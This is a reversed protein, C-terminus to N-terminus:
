AKHQLSRLMKRCHGSSPRKKLFAISAAIDGEEVIEIDVHRVGWSWMSRKSPRYIDVTTTGVLASGYDEVVYITTSGKIRFKTGLPMFSWDAAASNVNGSVLTTGVATKKGYRRHDAETHTYATTRVRLSQPKSRHDSFKMQSACSSMLLGGMLTLCLSVVPTKKSKTATQKNTTMNMNANM